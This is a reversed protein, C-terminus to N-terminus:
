QEQGVTFFSDRNFFAREAGVFVTGDSHTFEAKRHPNLHVEETGVKADFSEITGKIRAYVERHGKTRIRNFGGMAVLPTADRLVIHDVNGIVKGGQKVSWRPKGQKVANLNMHVTVTDGVQM